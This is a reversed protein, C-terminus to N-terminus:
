RMLLDSFEPHKELYEEVYPCVVDVMVDHERAWELANQALSGAIGKGRLSAPVETHLLQIINGALVYELYAVQGNEELEFRGRTAREAHVRKKGFM